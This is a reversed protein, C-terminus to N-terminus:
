MNRVSRLGVTGPRWPVMWVRGPISTWTNSVSAHSPNHLYHLYLLYNDEACFGLRCIFLYCHESTGHHLRECRFFVICLIMRGSNGYLNVRPHFSIQPPQMLMRINTCPCVSLRILSTRARRMLPLSYINQRKDSIQVSSTLGSHRAKTSLSHTGVSSSDSCMNTTKM